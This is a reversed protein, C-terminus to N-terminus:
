LIGRSQLFMLALLAFLTRQGGSVEVANASVFIWFFFFKAREVVHLRKSFRPTRAGNLSRLLQAFTKEVVAEDIPNIRLSARRSSYPLRDARHGHPETEAAGRRVPSSVKAEDPEGTPAILFQKRTSPCLRKPTECRAYRGVQAM